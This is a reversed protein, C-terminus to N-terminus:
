LVCNLIDIDGGMGDARCRRSCSESVDVNAVSIIGHKDANWIFVDLKRDAFAFRHISVFKMIMMGCVVLFLVLRGV